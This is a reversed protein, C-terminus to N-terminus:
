GLEFSFLLSSPPDDYSVLTLHESREFVPAKDGHSDAKAGKPMEISRQPRRTSSSPTRARYGGLFLIIMKTRLLFFCCVDNKRAKQFSSLIVVHNRGQRNISNKIRSLNEFTEDDYRCAKSEITGDCINQLRYSRKSCETRTTQKRNFWASLDPHNDRLVICPLAVADSFNATESFCDCDDRVCFQSNM